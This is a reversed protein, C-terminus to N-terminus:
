QIIGFISRLTDVPSTLKHAARKKADFHLATFKLVRWGLAQAANLKECDNSMGQISAHGGIHGSKGTSGHGQYEIAVRAAPVALDFRWMRVPHFRFEPVVEVQLSRLVLAIEALQKHRKPVKPTQIRDPRLNM